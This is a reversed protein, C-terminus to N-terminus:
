ARTHIRDYGPANFTATDEEFAEVESGPIFEGRKIVRRVAEDIEEKISDYQAKLDVLPVRM